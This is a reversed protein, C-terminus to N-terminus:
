TFCQKGKSSARLKLCKNPLQFDDYNEEESDSDFRDSMGFKFQEPVNNTIDISEIRAILSPPIM